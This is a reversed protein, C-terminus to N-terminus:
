LLNKLSDDFTPRLSERLPRVFKPKSILMSELSEM